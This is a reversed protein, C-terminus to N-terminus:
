IAKTLTSYQCCFPVENGGFAAGVISNLALNKNALNLCGIFLRFFTWFPRVMLWWLLMTKLEWTLRAYYLLTLSRLVPSKMDYLGSSEQREANRQFTRKTIYIWSEDLHIANGRTYISELRTAAWSVLRKLPLITVYPMSLLFAVMFSTSYEM